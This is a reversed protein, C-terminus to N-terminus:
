RLSGAAATFALSNGGSPSYDFDVDFRRFLPMGFVWKTTNGSSNSALTEHSRMDGVAVPLSLCLVKEGTGIEFLLCSFNKTVEITAPPYLIHTAGTDIYARARTSASGHADNGFIVRQDPSRVCRGASAQSLERNYDTFAVFTLPLWWYSSGEEIAVAHSKSDNRPSRIRERIMLLKRALSVTFSVSSRGQSLMFLLSYHRWDVTANLAAASLTAAKGMPGDQRPMAMGLVGSSLGAEFRTQLMMDAYSCSHEESSHLTESVSTAVGLLSNAIRIRRTKPKGLGLAALAFKGSVKSGDGYSQFFPLMLRHQKISLKRHRTKFETAPLRCAVGCSRFLKVICKRGAVWSSASGTDVLLQFAKGNIWMSAILENRHERLPVSAIQESVAATALLLAGILGILCGSIGFVESNWRPVRM